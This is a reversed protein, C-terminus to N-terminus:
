RNLDTNGQGRSTMGIALSLLRKAIDQTKSDRFSTSLANFSELRAKIPEIVRDRLNKEPQLLFTAFLDLADKRAVDSDGSQQAADSKFHKYTTILSHYVMYTLDSEEWEYEWKNKEIFESSVVDSLTNFGDDM